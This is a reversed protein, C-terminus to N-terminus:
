QSLTTERDAAVRAMHVGSMAADTGAAGRTEALGAVADFLVLVTLTAALAAALRTSRRTPEYRISMTNEKLIRQENSPRSYGCGTPCV